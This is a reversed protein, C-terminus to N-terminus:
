ANIRTNHKGMAADLGVRIIDLVADAARGVIEPLREREEPSFPDLVYDVMGEREPPRSVGVRVRIFDSTGWSAILSKVGKQGASSGGRQLKIREFPLDVEDHLVIVERPPIGFRDTLARAATGSLNMYTQPRATIVDYGEIVGERVRAKGERRARGFRGRGELEHLCMWGVNHRSNAYEGGPNGLGIM